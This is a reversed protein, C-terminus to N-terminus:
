RRDHAARRQPGIWFDASHGSKDMEKLLNEIPDIYKKVYERRKEDNKVEVDSRAKLKEENTMGETSSFREFEPRNDDALKRLEHLKKKQEDALEQQRAKASKKKVPAKPEAKPEEPKAKEEPAAEVAPEDATKDKDLDDNYEKMHKQAFAVASAKAMKGTFVHIDDGNACVV